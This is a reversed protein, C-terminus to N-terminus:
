KRTYWKIRWKQQIELVVFFKFNFNQIQLWFFIPKWKIDFFVSSRSSGQPILIHNAYPGKLSEDLRIIVVTACGSSGKEFLLHCGDDTQYWTANYSKGQGFASGVINSFPDAPQAKWVLHSPKMEIAAHQPSDQCPNERFFFCTKLIQMRFIAANEM